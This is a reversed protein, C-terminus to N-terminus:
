RWYFLLLFLYLWLAGMFHWYITTADSLGTRLSAPLSVAPQRFRWVLYILALLGGALHIAHLATLLYYFSSYPNSSIYIGAARLQSWALLQTTLFGTGLVATLLLWLLHSTQARKIRRRAVELTVSSAIILFTSLLLVRPMPLPRWDNASAARVVFASTLSTFLMVVSALAVGVGIRYRNVTLRGAVQKDQVAAVM